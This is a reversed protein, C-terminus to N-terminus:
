WQLCRLNDNRCSVTGGTVVFNDFQLSKTKLTWMIITLVFWLEGPIGRVFSWNHPAKINKINNFLCKLKWHNSLGHCQNTVTITYIYIFKHWYWTLTHHLDTLNRILLCFKKFEMCQTAIYYKGQMDIMECYTDCTSTGQPSFVNVVM